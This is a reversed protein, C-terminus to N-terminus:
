GLLRWGIIGLVTATVLFGLLVVLGDRAVLALGFAFIALSPIFAVFPLLELPPVCIAVLACALGVLRDAAPHTLAQLRPRVIKDAVRAPKRAVKVAKQVKDSTASLRGLLKPIWISDRGLLLQVSILLTIVALLTPATPVAAVPTMGLLGTLLLLPGFSRKGFAELIEDVSVKRGSHNAADQLEGLVDELDNAAKAM